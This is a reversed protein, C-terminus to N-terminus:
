DKKLKIIEEVHQIIYINESQVPPDPQSYTFLCM